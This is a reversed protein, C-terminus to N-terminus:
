FFKQVSNMLSKKDTNKGKKEMMEKAFNEGQDAAMKYYENAKKQDKEVGKGNQYCFGLHTQANSYGQEASMKYYEIAKKEDRDVGQGDRYCTGLNTQAIAFGKESSKLYYQFAKELDIKLVGEGYQYCYGLNAQAIPNGQDASQTFYEIANLLDKEIIEFYKGFVFSIDSNRNHNQTHFFNGHKKAEDFYYDM